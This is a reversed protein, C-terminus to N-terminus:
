IQRWSEFHHSKIQFEGHIRWTRDGLILV